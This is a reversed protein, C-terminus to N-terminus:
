RVKGLMMRIGLVEMRPNWALVEMRPGGHWSRSPIELTELADWARSRRSRPPRGLKLHVVFTM